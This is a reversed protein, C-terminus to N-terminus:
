AILSRQRGTLGVTPSGGIHLSDVDVQDSCPLWSPLLLVRAGRGGALVHEAHHSADTLGLSPESRVIGGLEGATGPLTTNKALCMSTMSTAWSIKSLCPM